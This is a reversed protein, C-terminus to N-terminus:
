RFYEILVSIPMRQGASAAPSSTTAVCTGSPMRTSSRPMTKM